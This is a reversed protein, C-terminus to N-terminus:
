HPNQLFLSAGCFSLQKIEHPPLKPFSSLLFMQSDNETHTPNLRTPVLCLAIQFDPKAVLPDPESSNHFIKGM